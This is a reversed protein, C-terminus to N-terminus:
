TVTELGMKPYTMLSVLYGSDQRGATLLNGATKLEMCARSLESTVPKQRSNSEM